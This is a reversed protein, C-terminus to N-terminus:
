RYYTLRKCVRSSRRTTVNDPVQETVAVSLSKQESIQTKPTSDSNVKNNRHENTGERQETDERGKTESEPVRQSSRQSDNTANSRPSLQQLDLDLFYDRVRISSDGTLVTRVRESLSPRGKIMPMDCMSNSDGVDGVAEPTDWISINKEAHGKAMPSDYMSNNGDVDGETKPTGCISIYGDVHGKAMPTGSIGIIVEINNESTAEGDNEVEDIDSLNNLERRGEEPSSQFLVQSIIRSPSSASAKLHHLLNEIVKDESADDDCEQFNLVDTYRYHDMSRKKKVPARPARINKTTSTPPTSFENGDPLDELTTTLVSKKPSAVIGLPTLPSVLQNDGYEEYNAATSESRRPTTAIPSGYTRDLPNNQQKSKKKKARILSSHDRSFRRLFFSSARVRSKAVASTMSDIEQPETYERVTSHVPAPRSPKSGDHEEGTTSSRHGAESPRSNHGREEGAAIDSITKSESDSSSSENTGDM